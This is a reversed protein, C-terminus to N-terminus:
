GRKVGRASLRPVRRAAPLRAGLALWRGVREAAAVLYARADRLAEATPMPRAVCAELADIGHGFTRRADDSLSGGIAIVPLGLRRAVAAVGSPTKGFATQYDIRGEGTIVLDTGALRQELGVADVVLDIGRMLRAGAFAVLGAGLGGAAGAGALRLIRVGCDREILAGFHRLNADLLGVQAATAGKQPGFVASAGLPGVLPNRVDCAVLVEAGALGPDCGAGDIAAIGSLRGGSLPRAITRGRRDLFRVGLAQAMGAGGDNTASGGIGVIVRRVGSGLAHRILEGTGFSTTRLPDRSALPVLPLGSAAAMEIVATRGDGLIGYRAQVPTGLPGTVTHRRRRGGTAAVLAEVTGEGGDAMPIKLCEVRPLARRLGREIADAVQAATLSEKFSDPAIAIRM